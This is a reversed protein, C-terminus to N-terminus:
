PRAPKRGPDAGSISASGSREPRRRHLVARGGGSRGSPADPVAPAAAEADPSEALVRGDWMRSAVMASVEDRLVQGFLRVATSGQRGLPLAVVLRRSLRPEAIPAARLLGAAVEAHVSPLPLITGGLGRMVLSKQIQLGDAEIAVQLALGHRLAEKEVLVRLGHQPGPLVLRHAAVEAFRVPRGAEVPDTCVFHLNEELLPSLRINGAQEPSYMVAIDIEGGHLWDLLYGSYATVVRLTVDPHLALFREILRAALVDGVTPPMGFAVHGRVTGGQQTLDARTEEVQRLISGARARLLEGAPTLVMGRGHRTFLAVKLEEELLRIQRSLAPQAIRLREAARSLSGLDATQVFTTLQRLDM